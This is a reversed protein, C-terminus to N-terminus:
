YQVGYGQVEPYGLFDITNSNKGVILSVLNILSLIKFNKPRELDNLNLDFSTSLQIKFNQNQDSELFVAGLRM